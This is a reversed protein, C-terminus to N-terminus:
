FNFRYGLRIGAMGYHLIGTSDLDRTQDFMIQADWVLGGYFRSTINLGVGIEYAVGLSADKISNWKVVSGDGPVASHESWGYYQDCIFDPKGLDAVALGANVNIYMSINAFLEDTTIRLGPMAKLVLSQTFHSVNSQAEARFGIANHDSIRFQAGVALNLVAGGAYYGMLNPGDMSLGILPGNGISGGGAAEFFIGSRNANQASAGVVTCIALLSLLLIKKM